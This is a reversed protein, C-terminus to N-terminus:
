IAEEAPLYPLKLTAGVFAFATGGGNRYVAYGSV